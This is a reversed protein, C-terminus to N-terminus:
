RPMSSSSNPRHLVASLQDNAEQGHSGPHDPLDSKCEAQQRSATKSSVLQKVTDQCDQLVDATNRLPKLFILVSLGM